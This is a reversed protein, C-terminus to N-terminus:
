RGKTSRATSSQQRAAASPTDAPTPSASTGARQGTEDESDDPESDEPGHGNESEIHSDLTDLVQRQEDESRFSTREAIARLAQGLSLKEAAAEQNPNTM